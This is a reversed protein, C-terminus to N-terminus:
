ICMNNCANISINEDSMQIDRLVICQNEKNMVICLNCVTISTSFHEYGVWYLISRRIFLKYTKGRCIIM